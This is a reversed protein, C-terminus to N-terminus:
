KEKKKRKSAIEDVRVIKKLINHSNHSFIERFHCKSFFGETFKETNRKRARNLQLTWFNTHINTAPNSHIALSYVTFVRRTLVV